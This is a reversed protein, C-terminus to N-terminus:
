EIFLEEVNYSDDDYVTLLTVSAKSQEARVDTVPGIVIHELSDDEKDISRSFSHHDGAIIAKVDAERIDALLDEAQDKVEKVIEGQVLGMVPKGYSALPHYLPQAVLVFDASFVESNIQGLTDSGIPTYNASNDVLLFATDQISVATQPIGFVAHFNDQGVTDYLDRDGPIAYYLLGSEEMIQKALTLNSVTGFDTFDGLFFVSHAGESQAKGLAKRLNASNNHADSMLAVKFAVERDIAADNPEDPGRISSVGGEVSAGDENLDGTYNQSPAINTKLAREVFSGAVEGVTDPSIGIKKLIPSAIKVARDPDLTSLERVFLSLGLIFATLIVISVISRFVRNFFSKKASRRKKRRRKFM